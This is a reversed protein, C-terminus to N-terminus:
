NVLRAVQAERELRDVLAKECEDDCYFFEITRGDRRPDPVQKRQGAIEGCSDCYRM